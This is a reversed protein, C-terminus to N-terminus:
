PAVERLLRMGLLTLIGVPAGNLRAKLWVGIFSIFVGVAILIAVVLPILILLPLNNM